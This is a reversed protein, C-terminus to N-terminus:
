NFRIAKVPSIRTIIRGPLLLTLTCITITMLNILLIHWINFNVPVTDLYYIDPNLSLFGTQQQLVVLGIGVINGIILGRSLLYFAHYIFVKRISKDSAGLAKLM